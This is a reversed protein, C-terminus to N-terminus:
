NETPIQNAHDIVLTEVPGKTANLKLGLQEQLATFISPGVEKGPTGQNEEPSWDLKIQFPGTLGTRDQVQRDVRQSLFETFQLMTTNATFHINGGNSNSSTGTSSVASEMKSGSKATELAYVPEEKTERHMKFGFRDALLSRLMLPIQDSATKEPFTAAIDFRDVDIWAPGSIQALPVQYARGVIDRLTVTTYNLRGTSTDASTRSHSHGVPQAPQPKITAVEFTAQACVVAATTTLLGVILLARM